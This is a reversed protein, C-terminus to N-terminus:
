AATDNCLALACRRRYRRPPPAEVVEV